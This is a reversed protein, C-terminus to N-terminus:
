LFRVSSVVVGEVEFNGAENLPIPRYLTNASLLQGNQLDLIKSTLEGDVVARVVGGDKALVAAVM